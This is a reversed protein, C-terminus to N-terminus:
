RATRAEAERYAMGEVENQCAVLDDFTLANPCYERYHTVATGAELERRCRGAARCCSCVREIDRLLTGFSHRLQDPDLGCARMMGMMLCTNDQGHMSLAVLDSDNLSLDRAIHHLEERSLNALDEGPPSHERVWDLVRGLLGPNALATETPPM